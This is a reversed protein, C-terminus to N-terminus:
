AAEKIPNNVVDAKRVKDVAENIVRSVHFRDFVFAANSLNDKIGKIFAPSMDCSVQEINEPQGNHAVLDSAFDQIVKHDKGEAIYITRKEVIDVFLSVYDHHKRVSTEDLGVVKVESYDEEARAKNTTSGREFDIWIELKGTNQDFQIEHVFWPKEVMLAKAFLDKQNLM